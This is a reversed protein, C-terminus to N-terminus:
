PKRGQYTTCIIDLQSRNVLQKWGLEVGLSGNLGGLGDVLLQSGKALAGLVDLLNGVAGVLRADTNNVLLKLGHVVKSVTVM